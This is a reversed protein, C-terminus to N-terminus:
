IFCWVNLRGYSQLAHEESTGARHKGQRSGDKFSEAQGVHASRKCPLPQAYDPSALTDNAPM